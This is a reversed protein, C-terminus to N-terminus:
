LFKENKRFKQNCNLYGQFAKVNELVLSNYIFDIIKIYLSVRHSEQARHRL